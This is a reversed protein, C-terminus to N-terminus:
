LGSVVAKWHRISRSKMNKSLTIAAIRKRNYYILKKVYLLYCFKSVMKIAVQDGSSSIARYVVGFSGARIKEVVNYDGLMGDYRSQRWDDLVKWDPGPTPARAEQSGVLEAIEDLTAQLTAAEQVCDHGRLFNYAIDITMPVVKGLVIRFTTAPDREGDGLRAETRRFTLSALGSSLDDVTVKQTVQQLPPHPLSRVVAELFEVIYADYLVVTKEGGRPMTSDSSSSDSRPRKSGAISPSRFFLLMSPPALSASTPAPSRGRRPGRPELVRRTQLLMTTSPTGAANSLEHQREQITAPLDHVRHSLGRLIKVLNDSM